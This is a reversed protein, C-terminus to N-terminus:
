NLGFSAITVHNTLSIPSCFSEKTDDVQCGKHMIVDSLCIEGGLRAKFDCVAHYITSFEWLLFSSYFVMTVVACLHWYARNGAATRSLLGREEGFERRPSPLGSALSRRFDLSLHWLNSFTERMRYKAALKSQTFYDHMVSTLVAAVVLDLIIADELM